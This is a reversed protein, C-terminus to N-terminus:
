ADGGTWWGRLADTTVKARELVPLHGAGDVEVCQAHPLLDALEHHYRPPCLADQTGWLILTKGLYAPLHPRQDPRSMLAQSHRIFQDAGIEEAMTLCLDLLAADGVPDAVYRPLLHAQMVERLGGASAMDIMRARFDAARASEAAGNTDMLALSAVRAPAQRAVEMAVIGGMSLGALCFREPAQDLVHQAIDPITGAAGYQAVMVAGLRSLEAIQPAFLRADCMLGPLFLLPPM